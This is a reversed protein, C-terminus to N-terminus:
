LEQAEMQARHADVDGPSLYTRRRGRFVVYVPYREAKRRLWELNDMFVRFYDGDAESLPARM